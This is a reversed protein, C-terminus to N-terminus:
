RSFQLLNVSAPQLIFHMEGNVPTTGQEAIQVAAPDDCTNHATIANASITRQTVFRPRPGDLDITVEAPDTAHSNVLSLQVLSGNVTASGAVLPMEKAADGTTFRVTTTEIDSRVAIANQHCQYLDFVHYTPTLIMRDEDTLIMAQLVNVIQAINAMVVKDAHRNFCDLTIAAVLADRITSQQWLHGPNRGPTAPHWTGWEDVILGIKKKPDYEDMCARQDLILKEM